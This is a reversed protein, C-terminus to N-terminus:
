AEPFSPEPSRLKRRATLDFSYITDHHALYGPWLSDHGGAAKWCDAFWPVFVSSAIEFTDMDAQECQPDHIIEQPITVPVSPLLQQGEDARGGRDRRYFLSPFPIPLDRVIM